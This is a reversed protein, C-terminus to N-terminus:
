MPDQQEDADRLAAGDAPDWMELATPRHETKRLWPNVRHRFLDRVAPDYSPNKCVSKTGVGLQIDSGDQPQQSDPVLGPILEKGVELAAEGDLLSPEM